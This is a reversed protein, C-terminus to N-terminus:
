RTRRNFDGSSTWDIVIQNVTAEGDPSWRSHEDEIPLRIVLSDGENLPRTLKELAENFKRREDRDRPAKITITFYQNPDTKDTGSQTVRRPEKESPPSLLSDASQVNEAEVLWKVSGNGSFSGPM